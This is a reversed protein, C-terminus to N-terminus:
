HKRVTITDGSIEFDYTDAGAPHTLGGSTLQAHTIRINHNEDVTYKALVPCGAAPQKGIVLINIGNDKQQCVYAVDRVNFGAQRTLYAPISVTGRADTKRGSDVQDSDPNSPVSSISPVTAAAVPVPPAAKPKGDNRQQPVYTSADTGAPHYVFASTPAGVDRLTRQYLGQSIYQDVEDHTTGKLDRHRETPIGQQRALNTVELTIDWATFMVNSNVKETVVQRILDASQSNCM